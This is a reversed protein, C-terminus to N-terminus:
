DVIRFKIYKERINKIWYIIRQLRHEICLLIYALYVQDLYQINTETEITIKLEDKM